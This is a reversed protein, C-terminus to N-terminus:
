SWHIGSDVGDVFRHLFGAREHARQKVFHALDDDALGVQDLPQDDAQQGVAVHQEFAHGAQGLRERHLRQGCQRLTLNERRWNVGSMSGASTM